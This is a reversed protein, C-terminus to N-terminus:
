STADMGSIKEDGMEVSSGSALREWTPAPFSTGSEDGSAGSHYNSHLQPGCSRSQRKLCMQAKKHTTRVARLRTRAEVVVLEIKGSYKQWATHRKKSSEIIVQHYRPRCARRKHGSLIRRM